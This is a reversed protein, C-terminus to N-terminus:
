QYLLVFVSALQQEASLEGRSGCDKVLVVTSPKRTSFYKSQRLHNPVQLSRGESRQKVCVHAVSLYIHIYTHTDIHICMYIFVYM